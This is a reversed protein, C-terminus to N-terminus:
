EMKAAVTLTRCVHVSHFTAQRRLEDAWATLAARQEALKASHNYHRRTVDQPAHALVRGVVDDPVGLEGMGTAVTKRLCYLTWPAMDPLQSDLSRKAGSWGSFGRGRTRGFVNPYGERRAPLLAAADPVLPIAQGRRAKMRERGINLQDPGVESWQLGGIECPRAGTLLLLRTIRAFDGLRAPNAAEWVLQIEDKSLVRERPALKRKRLGKAPNAGEHRGKEMALGYVASVVALAHNAVAPRAIGDIV